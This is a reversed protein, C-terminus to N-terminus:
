RSTSTPKWPPSDDHFDWGIINTYKNLLRALMQTKGTALDVALLAKHETQYGDEEAIFESQKVFLTKGDNSMQPEFQPWIESRPIPEHDHAHLTTVDRSALSPVDVVRIAGLGEGTAKDGKGVTRYTENFTVLHASDPTWRYSNLDAPGILTRKGTQRNWLYFGLGSSIRGNIVKGAPPVDQGDEGSPKDGPKKPAPQAVYAIWKGDPSPQPYFGNPIVKQPVSEEEPGVEYIATHTQQKSEDDTNPKAKNTENPLEMTVLLTNQSTWAMRTVASNRVVMHEKGTQVNYIHLEIEGSGEFDAGSQDGGVIFAIYQSNPSWFLHRFQLNNPSAMRKVTKRQFDWLFVFYSMINVVPKQGLKFMLLKADPSLQPDWVHDIFSNLQGHYTVTSVSKGELLKGNSLSHFVWHPQTPSQGVQISPMYVVEGGSTGEASLTEIPDLQPTGEVPNEISLNKAMYSPVFPVSKDYIPASPWNDKTTINPPQASPKSSDQAFVGLVLLALCGGVAIYTRKKLLCNM